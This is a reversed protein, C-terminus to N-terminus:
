TTARRVFSIPMRIAKPALCMPIRAITKRSAINCTPKPSM